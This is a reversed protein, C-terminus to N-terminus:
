EVVTTCQGAQCRVAISAGAGATRGDEAVTAQAPCGCRPYQGSCIPEDAIFRAQESTRFGIARTSGCCDFQHIGMACDAVTGCTKDFMPFRSAAATAQCSIEDCAGDVSGAPCMAAPDAGCGAILAVAVWRAVTRALSM